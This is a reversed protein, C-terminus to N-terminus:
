MYKPTRSNARVTRITHYAKFRSGAVPSGPQCVASLRHDGQLQWGGVPTSTCGSASINEVLAPLGMRGFLTTRRKIKGTHLRSPSGPAVHNVKRRVNVFSRTRRELARQRKGKSRSRLSHAGQVVRVHSRRTRLWMVRAFGPGIENTSRARAVRPQGAFRDAMPRSTGPPRTDTQKPRIAISSPLSPPRRPQFTSM